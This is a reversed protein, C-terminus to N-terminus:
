YSEAIPVSLGLTRQQGADLVIAQAAQGLLGLCTRLAAVAGELGSEGNSLNISILEVQGLRFCLAPIAIVSRM